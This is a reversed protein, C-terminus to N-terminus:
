YEMKRLSPAKFWTAIVVALTMCGGFLVSPVVGLLRAALGSEFQGIENSSNVFMSNVSLVRGRMEDPTKLQLITGRIVVSIGDLMGAVVLAMFSLWFFESLAFLIICCGFGGVAFFLKRGQNKRLPFLTLLIVILIAGIDVAANLWGFGIPGVKLIDKAFVPVLAVVGGFLVAFLDLTIAGLVEKTRFVFRLGEKVSELPRQKGASPAPPKPLLRRLLLFGTGILSCIVILTGTTQFGAIVFGGAAHGMVSATLFTGQNLTIANPLLPRPVTQALIASFSPGVFSRIIGTCFIVAYIGGAILMKAAGAHYNYSLFLLVAACSLYFLVGRLLLKRKDSLDIVHGAYLAMSIAPVAESLGVLGIAFPDGTLEYVWWGVLTSMMRLAMIFAFRGILLSRFEPIRLSALPDLKAQKIQEIEDM